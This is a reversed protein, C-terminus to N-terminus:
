DGWDHLKGDIFYAMSTTRWRMRDGLGLQELLSFTPQDSKCVFHYFREISLGDFDFHAAMGGPERGAELVEVSHGAKAAHYAAALGMVGAGVVLVRGM